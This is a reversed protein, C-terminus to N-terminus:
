RREKTLPWWAIEAGLWLPNKDEKTETAIVEVYSMRELRVRGGWAGRRLEGFLGVSGYPHFQSATAEFQPEGVAQLAELDDETHVAGVGASLGVRTSWSGVVGRFPALTVVAGLTSTMASVDPAVSYQSVLSKALPSWGDAGPYLYGGGTAGVGLWDLPRAEVQATLGRSTYFPDNVVQSYGAGAVLEFACVTSTFWLM